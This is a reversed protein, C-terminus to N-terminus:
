FVVQCKVFVFLGALSLGNHSMHWLISWPTDDWEPHSVHLWCKLRKYSREYTLWTLIKALFICTIGNHITQVFMTIGSSTTIFNSFYVLRSGPFHKSYKGSLFTLSFLPDPLCLTGQRLLTNQPWLQIKQSGRGPIQSMSVNEWVNRQWPKSNSRSKAPWQGEQM